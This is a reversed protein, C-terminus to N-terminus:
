NENGNWAYGCERVAAVDQGFWAEHGYSLPMRGNQLIGFVM